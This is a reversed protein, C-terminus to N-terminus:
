KIGKMIFYEIKIVGVDNNEFSPGFGLEKAPAEWLDFCSFDKTCDKRRRDVVTTLVCTKTDSRCLLIKTCFPIDRPAAIGFQKSNVTADIGECFVGHHSAATKNDENYWTSLGKGGYIFIPFDAFVTLPNFVILLVIFIIFKHKM